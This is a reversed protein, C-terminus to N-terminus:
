IKMVKDSVEVVHNVGYLLSNADINMWQFLQMIRAYCFM